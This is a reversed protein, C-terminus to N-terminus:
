FHLVERMVDMGREGRDVVFVATASELGAVLVGRTEDIALRGIPGGGVELVHWPQHHEEQDVQGSEDMGGEYEKHRKLAAQERKRLIDLTKYRPLQLKKWRAPPVCVGTTPNVLARWQPLLERCLTRGVAEGLQFRQPSALPLETDTDACIAGLDWFRVTSDHGTTALLQSDALYVADQIHVRPRNDEDLMPGDGVEHWLLAAACTLNSVNFLVLFPDQGGVWIFSGCPSIGLIDVDALGHAISAILVFQKDEFDVTLIHLCQDGTAKAATLGQETIADDISCTTFAVYQGDVPDVTLAAVMWPCPFLIPPSPDCTPLTATVTVAWSDCIHQRIDIAAVLAPAKTTTNRESGIFLLHRTEGVGFAIASIGVGNARVENPTIVVHTPSRRNVIAAVNVLVVRGTSEGIAIIESMGSGSASPMHAMVTACGAGTEDLSVQIAGRDTGIPQVMIKGPLQGDVMGSVSVIWDQWRAVDLVGLYLPPGGSESDICHVKSSLFQNAALDVMLLNGSRNVSDNGTRSTSAILVLSPDETLVIAKADGSRPPLALRNSMRPGDGNSKKRGLRRIWARTLLSATPATARQRDWLATVVNTGRPPPHPPVPVSYAFHISPPISAAGSGRRFPRSRVVACAGNRAQDLANLYESAGAAGGLTVHSVEPAAFQWLDDLIPAGHAVMAEFFAAALLPPPGFSCRNAPVACTVLSPRPAMTTAGAFCSVPRATGSKRLKFSPPRPPAPSYTPRPSYTPVVIEFELRARKLATATTTTVAPTAGSPERAAPRPRRRKTAM